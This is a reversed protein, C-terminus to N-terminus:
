LECIKTGHREAVIHLLRNESEWLHAEDARTHPNYLSEYPINPNLLTDCGAMWLEDPNFREIATIAAALGISVNRGKPGAGIYNVMRRFEENWPETWKGIFVPDGLYSRVRDEDCKGFCKPYVWYEKPKHPNSLMIKATEASAVIYDCLDGYDESKYFHDYKKLRIVPAKENILPGKHAGKLSPGHGVIVV